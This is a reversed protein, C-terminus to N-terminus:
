VLGRVAEALTARDLTCWTVKGTKRKMILGADALIRWHHCLLALSMGMAEALESGSATGRQALYEIIRVRRADGLAKFVAARRDITTPTAASRTLRPTDRRARAVASNSPSPPSRSM